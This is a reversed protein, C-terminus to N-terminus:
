PENFSWAAGFVNVFVQGGAAAAPSTIPGDLGGRTEMGLVHAGTRRDFADLFAGNPVYIRRDTVLMDSTSANEIPTKWILAGDAARLAYLYRDGGDHYVVDGYLESESVSTVVPNTAFDWAIRQTPADIAYEHAGQNVIV